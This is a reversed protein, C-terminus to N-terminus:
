KNSKTSKNYGSLISKVQSRMHTRNEASSCYVAGWLIGGILVPYAIGRTVSKKRALLLGMAAGTGVAAVELAARPNRVGISQMAGTDVAGDDTYRDYIM